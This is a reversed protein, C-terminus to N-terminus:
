IAFRKTSTNHSGSSCFYFFFMWIFWHFPKGKQVLLSGPSILVPFKNATSQVTFIRLGFWSIRRWVHIKPYFKWFYKEICNKRPAPHLVRKCFTSKFNPGFSPKKAIAPFRGFLLINTLLLVGLDYDFLRIGGTWPYQMRGLCKQM